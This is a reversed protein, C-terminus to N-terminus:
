PQLRQQRCPHLYAVETTACDSMGYVQAIVTSIAESAGLPIQVQAGSPLRIVVEGNATTSRAIRAPM